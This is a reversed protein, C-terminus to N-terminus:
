QRVLSIVSRHPFAYPRFNQVPMAKAWKHAMLGASLIATNQIFARRKM